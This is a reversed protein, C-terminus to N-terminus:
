DSGFHGKSRTYDNKLLNRPEIIQDATRNKRTSLAGWQTSGASPSWCMTGTYDGNHLAVLNPFFL